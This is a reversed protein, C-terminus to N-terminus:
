RATLYETWGATWGREYEALDADTPDGPTTTFWTSPDTDATADGLREREIAEAYGAAHGREYPTM